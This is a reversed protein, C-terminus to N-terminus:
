CCRSRAIEPQVCTTVDDFMFPMAALLAVLPCVTSASASPLAILRQPLSRYGPGLV